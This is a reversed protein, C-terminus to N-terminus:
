EIVVAKGEALRDAILKRLDGLLQDLEEENGIRVQGRTLDYWSYHYANTPPAVRYRTTLERLQSNRELEVRNIEGLLRRMEGLSNLTTSQTTRALGTRIPEYLSSLTAAENRTEAEPVGANRVASELESNLSQIRDNLESRWSTVQESVAQQAAHFSQVIERWRADETITRDHALTRYDTLFRRLAPIEVGANVMSNYFDRVEVFRASQEQRFHDVRGIMAVFGRLRDAEDQFLRLRQAPLPSNLMETVLSAATELQSPLPCQTMGQWEHLTRIQAALATLREGLANHLTAAVLAVNPPAGLVQTLAARIAILEPMSLEARMGQVRVTRFYADRSLLQEAQADNPDSIPRGNDILRCGSVRLLLALGIKVVNGDWGYPPREFEARLEGAVIPQQDQEALPLRARLSSILPHGDNLTGDARFVNLAQLDPNSSNNSLAARVAHQENIIRQPVEYLRPFITPVIQSLTSRIADVGGDGPNNQYINGRFFLTSNRMAQGILRRVEEKLPPLDRQKAEQAVTLETGSLQRRATVEDALSETAITLALTSRLGPTDEMRVFIADPSQASRQRMTNDDAIQTDMTRQLPSLLHLTAHATPNRLNAGDIDLRLTIDREQLRVNEIRLSNDSGVQEKLKGSLEVSQMMLEQQRARVKDQFSRQQTTLFHYTDGVQKAYGAQVLRDLESKVTKRLTSLNTDLDSVMTRTINELTTAIYGSQGLLYLGCSVLFTEEKSGGPVVTRVLSLDTKTEIPVDSSLQPYLQALSILRGVRAELLGPTEILAGQVVGIMTRNSGTLAEERSAAQAIGKVIDPIVSVTWPLYPYYLAFNDATPAPYIHQTQQLQGLDILDGSRETFRETLASRAEQTKGLIRAEVVQGIDENSLKCQTSFRGIIKAYYEQQVNQRLEQVDGHATVALWLRGGGQNAAEEALAQVQMIRENSNINAGAIWQGLEDLQIFLKHRVTGQDRHECWRRLREVLRHADLGSNLVAAVTREVASQSDFRDPLTNVAAQYLNSLYYEPDTVLDDWDIGALQMAHNRFQESLGQEDIQYEIAWAFPWNHTYGRQEAFLKFVIQPLRENADTLMSHLNGGVVTTSIKRRLITLFRAIDTRDQSSLPIRNLFLEHVPHNQLEGGELLLGIVKLLLSKGSGFFGNIWIGISQEHERDAADTYIDLVRHIHREWQPTVVLSTLEQYLITPTRAAVKVVPEIRQQVKTAFIDRIQM